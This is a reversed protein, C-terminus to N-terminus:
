KLGWACRDLLSSTWPPPPPALPPVCTPLLQWHLHLLQFAISIVILLLQRTEEMSRRLAYECVADLTLVESKAHSSHSCLYISPEPPQIPASAADADIAQVIEIFDIPSTLVEGFELRRESLLIDTTTTAVAKRQPQLLRAIEKRASPASPSAVKTSDIFCNSLAWFAKILEVSEFIHLRVQCSWCLSQHYCLLLKLMDDFAAIRLFDLSWRSLTINVLVITPMVVAAASWCLNSASLLELTAVLLLRTFM